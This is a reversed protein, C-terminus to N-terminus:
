IYGLDPTLRVSARDRDEEAALAYQKEYETNLMQLRPFAAPTKMALYYALGTTLATLFRPPIDMTNGYAGTDEIRRLKWYVLTGADVPVPWVYVTPTLTRNVWFRSPQGTQNKNAIHSWETVSMRTMTRDQQSTGSGIRWVADLIDITDSDLVATPALAAFAESSQAITWFNIGRNGWERMLLDLSRRATKLDYGTKSSIGVMEYAEEICDLIDLNFATTGSTAM